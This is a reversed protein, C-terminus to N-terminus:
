AKETHRLQEKMYVGLRIIIHTIDIVYHCYHLCSIHIHLLTMIICYLTDIININYYHSIIIDSM